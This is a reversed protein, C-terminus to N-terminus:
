RLGEQYRWGVQEPGKCWPQISGADMQSLVELSLSAAPVQCESEFLPELTGWIM